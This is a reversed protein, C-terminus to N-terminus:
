PQHSRQSCHQVPLYGTRCWGDSHRQRARGFASPPATASLPTPLATAAGTAVGTGTLTLNEIAAYSALSRSITSLIRDTGASDNIIDNTSAGLVYSDNGAGGILTDIQLDAGGYLTNNGGNGTIINALANGYGNISGNRWPSGSSCERGLAYTGTTGTFTVLDDGGIGVM